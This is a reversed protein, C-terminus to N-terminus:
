DFEFQYLLDVASDMGSVAELYLDTVLKYRVTFEGFSDFIGVGYKVQLDPTLYGSVTVQSEDGSGATDLQLDSVGFTEGIKGVVRGSKALSLGILAATMNNGGAAGAAIDQGRLLYSLANQQPMAPDSFVDISPASAPGTVRIGAVVDDQTNDPNRIAEISLYPQDVPGNMLVKGENIILDQGFSRYSGNVIEVKGVIFPGKDKQTVNLKGVLEGLLGFASLRVDDGIHINIDTEIEMPLPTNQKEPKLENNLIVEDSSVGIASSPLAEVAIRGWPLYIDGAIKTLKPTVSVTMDPKVKAHFIPPLYVNLEEAFVKVHADWAALDKWNADGDMHLVGDPTEINANLLAGYGSFDVQFQGSKVDIPTIDGQAVMGDILFQGDVKPHMVSGSIKIDSNIDANIKSYEGVFPQLMKLNINNLILQADLGQHMSQVDAIKVNGEIDGNDIIDFIWDTNLTDDHLQVNFKASEWGLTIPQDQHDVQQTVHGKPLKVSIKVDPKKTPSWSAWTFIDAKSEVQIGEPMLMNIQHFDFHQVNLFVEGSEGAILDKSLCIKSSSQTWCHAQVSFLQNDMLFGLAVQHDLIWSGQITSLEAKDVVGKWVLESEDQVEGRIHLNTKLFDSMVDFDIQHNNQTGFFDFIVSDIISNQYVIHNVKLELEGRPVPFFTLYGLLHSSSVTAINLYSLDKASLNTRILPEELGGRLAIQGDVKGQIDPFTKAINPFDINTDINWEKDLQGSLRISNPGHKIAIGNSVLNIEGNGELDSAFVDGDINVPDGRIMGTVDLIPLAVQWGGSEFLQGTTSLSGNIVGEVQDWEVGPQINNLDLDATWNMSSRWNAMVRGSVEGGLTRVLISGFNIHNSNGKGKIFFNSRPISKGDVIASFTLQYDNLLGSSDMHPIDVTYRGEGQFPWQMHGDTLVFGFPLAPKFPEIHGHLQANMVGSFKADLQMKVVNGKAELVLKQGELETQKVLAEARFDLPYDGKLDGDAVIDLNLQPTDIMLKNLTVRNEHAYASVELEDVIIPTEGKLTVHHLHLQDLEIELPILIDPLPNSPPAYGVTTGGKPKTAKKAATALEINVNEVLTPHITLTKGNMELGTKFTHWDVRHGLINLDIDSMEVSDVFIPIASRIEMMPESVQVPDDDSQPPWASLTVKLGEINVQEICVSYTLFCTADMALTFERSQVDVFLNDNQFSVGFLSFKPFIAGESKEIELQPWIKEVGWIITNLGVHTFIVGVFLSMTLLLLVAVGIFLRGGWQFVIRSM